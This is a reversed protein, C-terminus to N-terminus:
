ITKRELGEWITDTSMLHYLPTLEIGLSSRDGRWLKDKHAEPWDGSEVTFPKAETMEMQVRLAESGTIPVFNNDVRRVLGEDVLDELKERAKLEEYLNPCESNLVIRLELLTVPKKKYRYIENLYSYVVGEPGKIPEL